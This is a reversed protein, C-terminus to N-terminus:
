GKQFQYFLQPPRLFSVYPSSQVVPPLIKIIMNDHLLGEIAERAIRNWSLDDWTENRETLNSGGVVVVVVEVMGEAAAVVVQKM